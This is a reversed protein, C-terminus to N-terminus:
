SIPTPVPDKLYVRGAEMAAEVTYDTNQDAFVLKVPGVQIGEDVLQGEKINRYCAIYYEPHVKFNTTAGASVSKEAAILTNSVAFGMTVAKAPNTNNQLKILGPSTTGTPTKQIDPIDGQVIVASYVEGLNAQVLQRGTYQGANEDWNAIAVQFDLSWDARNIGNPPLGRVQWAISDLGPSEPHQQYVAFHYANPTSNKFRVTYNTAM